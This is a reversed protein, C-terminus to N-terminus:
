GLVKTIKSLGEGIAVREKRFLGLRSILVRMSDNGLDVAFLAGILIRRSDDKAIDCM